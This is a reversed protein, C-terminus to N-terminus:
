FEVGGADPGRATSQDAQGTADTFGDAWLYAAVMQAYFVVFASVIGGLVPVANLAGTIISAAIFVGVAALWAVAYDSDFLIPKLTGFDFGAGLTDERAFNLVAAVAVYGFVLGLVLSLLGGLLVGIGAAIGGARGGSVAALIAGGVTVGAVLLPILLYVIGIIWAKLGDTLLDGWNDFQPPTPQDEFRARVVHIIYGSVLIAPIVLFSLLSLVGGILITRVWDDGDAPYTVSQEINVM